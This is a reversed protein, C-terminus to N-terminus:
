SALLAFRTLALAMSHQQHETNAGNMTLYVRGCCIIPNQTLVDGRIIPPLPNAQMMTQSYSLFNEGGLNISFSKPPDWLLLIIVLASNNQQQQQHQPISEARTHLDTIREM